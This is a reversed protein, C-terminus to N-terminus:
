VDLRGIASVAREASVVGDEHFGYGWYAGCYATRNVGSIESVRRQAAIAASDFQPHAYTYRGIVQSPDIADARNLTVLYHTKCDLSQLTNMSYTVAPQSATDKGDTWYNWAARARKAAPLISEDTHLVVDNDSYRIAGLLTQEAPTPDRLLALAQDSHCALVIADFSVTRGGILTLAVQDNTRRVSEVQCRSELTFKKRSMLKEIYSNSGGSIVRWQPRNKLDLLGHNAFFQLFATLPFQHVDAHSSSWIASAMPLLYDRRFPESFQYQQLFDGLSKASTDARNLAAHGVAGFRIIERLFRYHRPRLVNSPQAFLGWPLNGSYELGSAENRVGFSMVSPQTPVDLETLLACFRPYNRENYVIFGTDIGLQGHASEVAVTHTHGGVRERREYVTVEHHEALRFAATLGSIGSGVVAIRM